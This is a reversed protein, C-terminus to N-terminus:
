HSFIKSCDSQSKSSIITTTLESLKVSCFCDLYLHPELSVELAAASSSVDTIITSLIGHIKERFVIKNTFFSLFNNSNLTIPIYPEHSSLSKTLRAITNFLTELQLQLEECLLWFDDSFLYYDWHKCYKEQKISNFM